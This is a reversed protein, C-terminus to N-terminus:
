IKICYMVKRLTVICFLGVFSVAFAFAILWSLSLDKVNIPTVGEGAQSAVKKSM